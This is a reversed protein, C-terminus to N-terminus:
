FYSGFVVKCPHDESQLLRQETYSVRVFYSDRVTYSATLSPWAYYMPNHSWPPLCYLDTAVLGIKPQLSRGNVKSGRLVQTAAGLIENNLQLLTVMVATLAQVLSTIM